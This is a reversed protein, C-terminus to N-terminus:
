LRLLQLRKQRIRRLIAAPHCRRIPDEPGFAEDDAVKSTAALGAKTYNIEAVVSRAYEKGPGAKTDIAKLAQEDSNTLGSMRYKEGESEEPRLYRDQILYYYVGGPRVHRDPYEEQVHKVAAQLYATLQLQIGSYIDRVSFRKKGSKYDIIRVFGM